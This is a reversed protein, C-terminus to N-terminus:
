RPMRRWIGRPVFTTATALASLRGPIWVHPKGGDLATVAAEAVVDPTSSMPAPDMGETMKGIVFGPRAITLQISSGHLRDQMGQLFGDVGAKASGYVYNPRRVRAGAISSFALIRGSVGDRVPLDGNATSEEMRVVLETAIAAHATFDTHIVKAVAVGSRECEDQNGLIGFAIVATDVPAIAWAEELVGAHSEIDDADFYLRHVATAGADTMRQAVEDLADIRRAALTVVNHNALRAAVEGGIESTGGLILVHGM